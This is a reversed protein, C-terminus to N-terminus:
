EFEAEEGHAGNQSGLQTRPWGVAVRGKQGGNALEDKLVAVFPGRRGGGAGENECVGLGECACVGMDFEDELLSVLLFGDDASKVTCEEKRRERM